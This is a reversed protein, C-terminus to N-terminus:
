LLNPSQNCIEFKRIMPYYLTQPIVPNLMAGLHTAARAIGRRIREKKKAHNDV